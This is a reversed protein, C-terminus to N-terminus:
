IRVPPADLVLQASLTQQAFQDRAAPDIQKPLLGHQRFETFQGQPRAIEVLDQCLGAAQHAFAEASVEGLHHLEQVVAAAQM